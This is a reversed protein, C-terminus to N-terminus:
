YPKQITVKGGAEAASTRFVLGESSMIAQAPNNWKKLAPNYGVTSSTSKNYGTATNNYMGVTRGASGSIQELTTDVPFGSGILTDKAVGAPVLMAVNYDPVDGHNIWKLTAVSGNRVMIMSDPNLIQNPNNWKKLGPNYGVSASSSKNIGTVTNNYVYVTVGNTYSVGYMGTPFVSGITQHKYVRFADGNSVYTLVNTDALTFGAEGNTSITSWLGEGGGSTFRVYYGNTYANVALGNTVMVGDDTKLSVTFNGEANQNFPVSVLVDSNAPVTLTNYGVAEAANAAQAALALLAAATIASAKMKM